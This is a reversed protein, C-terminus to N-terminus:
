MATVTGNGGAIHGGEVELSLVDLTGKAKRTKKEKAPCGEVLWEVLKLIWPFSVKYINLGGGGVDVGRVQPLVIGNERHTHHRLSSDAMTEGCVECSVRTKKREPFTPGEGTSRRKYAKAGQHGWIFRPTCIMAKTKNLNTHLGVREFNRVMTTLAAQVWILYTFIIHIKMKKETNLRNGSLTMNIM